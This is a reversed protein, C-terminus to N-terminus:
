PNAAEACSEFEAAARMDGAARASEALQSYIVHAQGNDESIYSNLALPFLDNRVYLPPAYLLRVRRSHWSSRAEFRDAAKKLLGVRQRPEWGVPLDALRKYPLPDSPDLFMALRYSKSAWSIAM